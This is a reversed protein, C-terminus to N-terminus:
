NGTGSKGSLKVGPLWGKRDTLEGTNLDALGGRTGRADKCYVSVKSETSSGIIKYYQYLIKNYM